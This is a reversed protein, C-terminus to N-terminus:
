RGNTKELKAVEKAYQEPTIGLTKAIRVADASLRIKRPATSRSAPAVVSASKRKAPTGGPVEDEEFVDPFTKRMRSDLEEYYQDSRPDVGERRLKMDLGLAYATMEPNDDSGFWQNKKQWSVAKEDVPPAKPAAAQATTPLRVDDARDQLTPMKINSVKDMRIKATTLAEQAQTLAEADGAEYAEKYKRRADSVENEVVRKAQEVLAGQSKNVSGRLKGVEEQMAKAFTLAEERERQAQEKARREDHYGKSFHQIRKKVKDSYETLEDETVEEPPESPKRGRDKLPTKDEVEIEIEEDGEIEVEVSDDEAQPAVKKVDDPFEFKEKVMPM